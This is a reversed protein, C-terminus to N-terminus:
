ENLSFLQLSIHAPASLSPGIKAIRRTSINFDSLVRITVTSTPCAKRKSHEFIYNAMDSNPDLVSTKVNTKIGGEGIAAMEELASTWLPLVYGYHTCALGVFVSSVPSLQRSIMEQWAGKVCESLDKKTVASNLGFKEISLHLTECARVVVREAPVGHENVLGDRHSGLRATNPTGFILLVPALPDSRMARAFLSVGFPIISIVPITASKVYETKPYLVSLTNCAILIIDPHQCAIEQLINDLGRKGVYYLLNVEPALPTDLLKREIASLIALGGLGLDTVAITVAKKAYLSQMFLDSPWPAVASGIIRAQRSSDDAEAEAVNRSEPGEVM